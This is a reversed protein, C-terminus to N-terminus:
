KSSAEPQVNVVTGKRYTVRLAHGGNPYVQVVEDPDSSVQPQAMGVAFAAQWVNMGKEVRHESIAKWVEAPWFNYLEHPDEYFFMEDAYIQYSGKVQAGVPVAYDRDGEKFIALVQRQDPAGPTPQTVVDHIRIQQIPGLMGVSHQFDAHRRAADWPYVTYRYGEKTWEPQQTLERTASKLDYAHLKKPVVYAERNLPLSAPAPKPNVGPQRRARIVLVLRVAAAVLLILLLLQILRTTQSKAM